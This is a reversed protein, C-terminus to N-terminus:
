IIIMFLILWYYYKIVICSFLLFYFFFLCNLLYDIIEMIRINFFRSKLFTAYQIVVM